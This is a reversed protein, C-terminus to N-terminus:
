KLDNIATIRNEISPHTSFWNTKRKANANSKFPNVIYMHATSSNAFKLQQDDQDLKKLANVLGDPNRTFGVATADALYERRRSVALQILKAFIPSIILFVLGILM